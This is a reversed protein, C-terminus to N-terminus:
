RFDQPCAPMGKYIPMKDESKPVQLIMKPDLDQPVRLILMHACAGGAAVVTTLARAESEGPTNEALRAFDELLKVHSPLAERVSQQPPAPTLAPAGDYGFCSACGALLLCLLSTRMHM